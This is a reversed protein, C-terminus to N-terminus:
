KSMPTVYWRHFSVARPSFQGIRVLISDEGEVVLELSIILLRGKYCPLFRWFSPCWMADKECIPIVQGFMLKM